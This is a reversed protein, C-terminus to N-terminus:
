NKFKYYVSIPRNERRVEYELEFLKGVHDFALLRELTQIGMQEVLVACAEAKKM